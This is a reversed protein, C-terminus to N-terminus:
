LDHSLLWLTLYFACIASFSISPKITKILSKGKFRFLSVCFISWGYIHCIPSINVNSCWQLINLSVTFHVMLTSFLTKKGFMWGNCTYPYFATQINLILVAPESFVYKIVKGRNKWCVIGEQHEDRNSFTLM